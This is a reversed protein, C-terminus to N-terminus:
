VYTLIPNMHKLQYIILKVNNFKVLIESPCNM